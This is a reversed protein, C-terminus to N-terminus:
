AVRAAHYRNDAAANARDAKSQKKAAKSKAPVEANLESLDSIKVWFEEGSVPMAIKALESTSQLVAVAGLRKHRHTAEPISKM